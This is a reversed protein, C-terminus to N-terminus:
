EIQINYIGSIIIKGSLLPAILEVLNNNMRGTTILVKNLYYSTEDEKELMLVYSENESKIIASQPLSFVSDVTTIIEGEAYQNSVINIKNLNEIEAYCDISKTNKVFSKGVSKIKAPHRESENGNIFYYVIQGVKVKNIENEFVSLKLQYDRTDIIEAIKQQPDIFQGITVDISSVYGNIPSKISFTPLFEGKEVLSVDLGMNELKIKLANYKAQEAHYVSEALVFEKYTGINESHLEKVLEFESKLRKLIASSEAFDKQIDIFENGSIEFLLTGKSVKQSPKCYIKNILGSLPLSIQALGKVSPVINGTFPVLENFPHLKPMGFEMKESNFQAKTIEILGTDTNSSEEQKNKCSFFIM